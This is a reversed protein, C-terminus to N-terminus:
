AQIAYFALDGGALAGVAHLGDPSVAVAEMPKKVGAARQSRVGGDATFTQVGFTRAAGSKSDKNAENYANHLGGALAGQPAAIGGLGAVLGGALDALAKKMPNLSGVGAVVKRGSPTLVLCKFSCNAESPNSFARLRRGDALGFRWAMIGNASSGLFGAGLFAAGDASLAVSEIKAEAEANVRFLREGDRVRWLAMRGGEDGALVHCGDTSYALASIAHDLKDKALPFEEGTALEFLRLVRDKGGSVAFRGNPAFACCCVAGRHLRFRKLPRGTAPEWLVLAGANDGSLALDGDPSFALATVTDEHREFRSVKKRARADIVHIESGIGALAWKDAASVAVCTAARETKVLGMFGSFSGAAAAAAMSSVGKEIPDRLDYKNDPVSDLVEIDEVEPAFDPVPIDLSLKCNPCFVLKGVLAEPVQYRKGCTCTVPIPM